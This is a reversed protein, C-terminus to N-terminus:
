NQCTDPFSEILNRFEESFTNARVEYIPRMKCQEYLSKLGNLKSHWTTEDMLGERFQYFDNEYVFYGLHVANRHSIEIPSFTYDYKQEFYVSQFDIGKDDMARITQTTLASRSQHQSAIAIKQTQRMELGVFILSGIIGLIGMLQVIFGYNFKEKLM